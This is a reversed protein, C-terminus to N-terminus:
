QHDSSKGYIEKHHYQRMQDPSLSHITLYENPNALAEDSIYQNTQTTPAIYYRADKTFPVKHREMACGCWYDEQWRFCPLAALLKMAKSSLWYACGAAFGSPGGGVYDETTPLNQLIRDWYVFVDDDIKLIYDYGLALAYQVLEKLKLASHQYDDPADVFIEDPLPVQGATPRGKVVVYDVTVDKLWTDRLASVRDVDPRIYWDKMCPDDFKYNYQHCSFVALLIKM